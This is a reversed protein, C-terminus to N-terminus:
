AHLARFAQAVREDVREFANVGQEICLLAFPQRIQNAGPLQHQSLYPRLGIPVVLVDTPRTAHGGWQRIEEIRFVPYAPAIHRLEAESTEAGVNGFFVKVEFEWKRRLM